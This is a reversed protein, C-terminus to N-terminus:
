LAYGGRQRKQNERQLRRWERELADNSAAANLSPLCDRCYATKEDAMVFAARRVGCNECERARPQAQDGTM